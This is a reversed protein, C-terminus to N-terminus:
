KSWIHDKKAFGCVCIGTTVELRYNRCVDILINVEVVNGRGDRVRAKGEMIRKNMARQKRLFEPVQKEPEGYTGFASPEEQRDQMPPPANDDYGDNRQSYEQDIYAANQANYGGNQNDDEADWGSEADDQRELGPPYTPTVPARPRKPKAVKKQVMRTQKIPIPTLPQGYIEVLKENLADRGLNRCLQLVQDLKELNDSDHYVYFETLEAKIEDDTMDEFTREGIEYEEEVEQYTYETAEDGDYGNQQPQQQEAVKNEHGEMGKSKLFSNLSMGYIQDMKADFEEIGIQCAWDTMEDLVELQETDEMETYFYELDDKLRNIDLEFPNLGSQGFQQDDANFEGGMDQNGSDGSDALGEGYRKKLKESLKPIGNLMAFKVFKEFQNERAKSVMNPDHKSFFDFLKRRYEQEKAIIQTSLALGVSMRNFNQRASGTDENVDITRDYKRQLMTNLADIGNDVTFEVLGNVDFGQQLIVPDNEQYFKFILKRLKPVPPTSM